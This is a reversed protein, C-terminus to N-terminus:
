EVEESFPNVLSINLQAFDKTNRTVLTWGHVRATAGILADVTPVPRGPPLRAWEEAVDLSVPAIRDRFDARITALTRELSRVQDQDKRRRVREIGRLLEGITLVSLHHGDSQTAALWDLVGANRRRKAIESVVNTDILYTM